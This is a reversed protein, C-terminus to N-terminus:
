QRTKLEIQVRRAQGRGLAIRTGRILVIIPGLSHNQVMKVHAGPTFGLASLRGVFTHGGALDRVLGVQGTALQDLPVTSDGSEMAV